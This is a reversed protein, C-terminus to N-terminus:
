CGGVMDPVNEMEGNNMNQDTLDYKPLQIGNLVAAIDPSLKGSKIEGILKSIMQKPFFLGKWRALERLIEDDSFKNGYNKILHAALGRMAKAHDCNCTPKGDAYTLATVPCCFECSIKGTIEAYREFELETFININPDYKKMIDISEQVRDFSVNLKKGYLDPQGKIMVIEIADKQINGTLKLDRGAPTENTRTYIVNYVMKSFYGDIGLKTKINIILLQNFLILACLFVMLLHGIGAYINGEAPKQCGAKNREM